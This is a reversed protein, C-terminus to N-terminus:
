TARRRRGGRAARRARAEVAAGDRRARVAQVRDIQKRELAPDIRLIELEGDGGETYDNVGVVIASAATSRAAPADYAADAIERQPFGRKVAEVM